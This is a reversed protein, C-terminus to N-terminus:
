PKPCALPNEAVSVGGDVLLKAGLVTGLLGGILFLAALAPREPVGTVEEVEKAHLSDAESRREARYTLILYLALAALM